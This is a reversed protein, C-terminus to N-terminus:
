ASDWPENRITKRNHSKPTITQKTSARDRVTKIAMQYETMLGQQVNGPLRRGVAVKQSARCAIAEWLAQNLPPAVEYRISSGETVHLLPLRLTCTRDAPDYSEILREEWIGGTTLIRLYYGAYANERRDLIGLDPASDLIFETPVTDDPFNGGDASYHPSVTPTPIFWLTWDYETDPLPNFRIVNGELVWGPGYWDKDDGPGWDELLCMNTDHRAFRLVEGVTPPLQYFETETDLTITLRAVVPAEDTMTVRGLVDDIAPCIFHRVIFDNNFKADLEPEDIYTRIRDLVTHLFSGTSNM